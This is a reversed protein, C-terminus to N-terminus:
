SHCLFCNPHTILTYDDGVTSDGLRSVEGSAQPKIKKALYPIAAVVPFFHSVDFTVTACPLVTCTCCSVM